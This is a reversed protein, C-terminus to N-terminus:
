AGSDFSRDRYTEWSLGKLLYRVHDLRTSSTMNKRLLDTLAAAPDRGDWIAFLLPRDLPAVGPVNVFELAFRKKDEGVARRGEAVSLSLRAAMQEIRRALEAAFLDMRERDDADMFAKADDLRDELVLAFADKEFQLQEKM